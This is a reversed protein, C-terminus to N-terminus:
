AQVIMVGSTVEQATSVITRVSMLDKRADIGFSKLRELNAFIKKKESLGFENTNLYKEIATVNWPEGQYYVRDVYYEGAEPVRLFNTPHPDYCLPIDLEKCTKIVDSFPFKVQVEPGAGPIFARITGPIRAKDSLSYGSFAAHLHPFNNPFVTSYFSQLYYWRKVDEPTLHDYSIAVIRDPKGPYSLVANEGGYGIEVEGSKRALTPIGQLPFQAAAARQLLEETFRLKPMREPM